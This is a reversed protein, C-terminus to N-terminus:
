AHEGTRRRMSDLLEMERHAASIRQCATATTGLALIWLVPLMWGFLSGAALLLVREGREVLGGPLRDVTLEARAKAYSTLISSMLIVAALLQPSPFSRLAWRAARTTTM